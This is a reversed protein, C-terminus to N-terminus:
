GFLCYCSSHRSSPFRTHANVSFEDAHMFTDKFEQFCDGDITSDTEIGEVAVRYDPREPSVIYGHATFNFEEYREMFDLIEGLTPADNQAAAQNAHSDDILERLICAPMCTFSVVGGSYNYGDKPLYPRVILDRAEHDPNYNFRSM